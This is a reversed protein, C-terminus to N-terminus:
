EGRQSLGHAMERGEGAGVADARGGAAGGARGTVAGGFFARVAPIRRPSVSVADIGVEKLRRIYRPDGGLEGCVSLPKGMERAAAAIDRLLAWFVPRDPRYDYAVKENDRDVAFLYQVLDNTGISGFDAIELIERPQLCASPVEFMAGHLMRGAPVGALSEEVAERLAVFQDRDVIMPYLIHVPGDRSVRALARVQASLLERRGLLLRAGRWGLSPNEERPIDLFPLTKDSGIDLLRFIVTEGPMAQRVKRYRSVLEEEGLLRGAALIEIETRYLGIGEARMRVADEVDHAVSVNAMVKMGRVPDAVAPLRVRQAGRERAVAITEERPGIVVEGSGGDVLLETGCPLMSHIGALGSVAPIGLARALIAAHSNVGGRETVFGMTREADMEVTMAPTLEEAVVIRDRGRRCHAEGACQLSPQMNGLVDLLRRRVEGFDSAREKIYEDDMRRLREEYEDMVRSIAAEANLSDSRILGRM